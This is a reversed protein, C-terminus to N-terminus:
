SRGRLMARIKPPLEAWEEASVGPPPGGDSAADAAVAEPPPRPTAHPTAAPGGVAVGM